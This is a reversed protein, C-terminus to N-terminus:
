VQNALEYSRKLRMMYELKPESSINGPLLVRSSPWNCLVGEGSATSVFLVRYCYLKDAATPELSSFVERTVLKLINNEGAVSFTSDTTYWKVEGHIIQGRNFRGTGDTYGSYIPFGVAQGTISQLLDNNNLPVSSIITMDVIYPQKTLAAAFKGNTIGSRQEFSSYPYFTKKDMAYGSLDIDQQLVFTAGVASNDVLEYGGGPASIGWESSESDYEIALPGFESCLTRQMDEDTM